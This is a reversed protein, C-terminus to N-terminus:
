PIFGDDLGGDAPYRAARFAGSKAPPMANFPPFRAATLSKVL